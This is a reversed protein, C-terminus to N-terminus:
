CAAGCGSCSFCCGDACADFPGPKGDAHEPAGCGPCSQPMRYPNMWGDPADPLNALVEARRQQRKATRDTQTAEIGALMKDAQKLQEIATSADKKSGTVGTEHWGAYLTAVDDPNADPELAQIRELREEIRTHLDDLYNIQAPTAPPAAAGAAAASAGTSSAQDVPADLVSKPKIEHQNTGRRGGTKTAM